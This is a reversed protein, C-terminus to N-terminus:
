TTESDQCKTEKVKKLAEPDFFMDEETQSDCKLYSSLHEITANFEENKVEAMSAEFEVAKRISQVGIAGGLLAIDRMAARVDVKIQRLTNKLGKADAGLKFLLEQSVAM